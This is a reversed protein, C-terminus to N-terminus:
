SPLSQLHPLRIRCFLSCHGGHRAHCSPYRTPWEHQLRLSVASAACSLCTHHGVCLGFGMGQFIVTAYGEAYVIDWITWPQVYLLFVINRKRQQLEHITQRQYSLRRCRAHLSVGSLRYRQASDDNECRGPPLVVPQCGSGKKAFIAASEQTLVRLWSSAFRRITLISSPCGQLYRWRERKIALEASYLLLIWNLPPRPPILM